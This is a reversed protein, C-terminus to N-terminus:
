FSNIVADDKEINVFTDEILESPKITKNQIMQSLSEISEYRLSM